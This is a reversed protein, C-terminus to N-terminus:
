YSKWICRGSRPVPFSISYIYIMEGGRAGAHDISLLFFWLSTRLCKTYVYAYLCIYVCVYMCVYTCVYMGVLCIYFLSSANTPEGIRASVIKTGPTYIPIGREPRRLVVVIQAFHEESISDVHISRIPNSLTWYKEDVKVRLPIYYELEEVKMPPSGLAAPDGICSEKLCTQIKLVAPFSIRAM